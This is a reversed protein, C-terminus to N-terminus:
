SILQLGSYFLLRFLLSYRRGTQATVDIKGQRQVQFSFILEETDHAEWIESLFKSWWSGQDPRQVHVLVTNDTRSRWSASYLDQFEEAEM